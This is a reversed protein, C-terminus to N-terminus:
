RLSPWITCTLYTSLVIHTICQFLPQTQNANILVSQFTSFVNDCISYVTHRSVQLLKISDPVPRCNFPLCVVMLITKEALM